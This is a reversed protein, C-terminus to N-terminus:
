HPPAGTSRSPKSNRLWIKLRANILDRHEIGEHVTERVEPYEALLTEGLPAPEEDWALIEFRESTLRQRWERITYPNLTELRRCRKVARQAGERETVFRRYETLSLRAHAWPIDVVGSKHCGRPSFYPDTSLYILGGPRVVRALENLAPQLPMIHEIASRSMVLDFSDDGFEMATADMRALRIPLRDVRRELEDDPDVLKSVAAALRRVRETREVSEVLPLELDIGVISKVPHLAMLLCNIGDGCGMDLIRAGEVGAGFRQCAAVFRRTRELKKKAAVAYQDDGWDARPSYTPRDSLVRQRYGEVVRLVQGDDRTFTEM